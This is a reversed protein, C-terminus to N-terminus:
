PRKSSRRTKEPTPMDDLLDQTASSGDANNPSHGTVIPAFSIAPNVAIPDPDFMTLGPQTLDSLLTHRDVPNMPDTGRERACRECHYSGNLTNGALVQQGCGQCERRVRSEQVMEIFPSGGGPHDYDETYTLSNLIKMAKITKHWQDLATTTQGSM